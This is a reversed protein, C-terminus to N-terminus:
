EVGRLITNPIYRKAIALFDKMTEDDWERCQPDIVSDKCLYKQLAYKKCGELMQGIAEIDEHLHFSSTCTTRFEYDVKDQHMLYNISKVVKGVIIKDVGCTMSYKEFRNKIDMAVYDVLGTNCLEELREPFTGNTDVKVLFGMHKVTRVFDIIDLNLFPEGGSICVGDLIGKRTELFNFIEQEPIIHSASETVLEKNHCFPCRLNCGYTFITCAVKDPYDLLTLKQIGGIVM